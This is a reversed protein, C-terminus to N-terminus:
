RRHATNVKASAHSGAAAATALWYQEDERAAQRVSRNFTVGDCSRVGCLSFLDFQGQKRMYKFKRAIAHKVSACMVVLAAAAKSVAKAPRCPQLDWCRLAM